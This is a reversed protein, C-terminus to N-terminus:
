LNNVYNILRKILGKNKKSGRTPRNWNENNPNDVMVVEYQREKMYSDLKYKMIFALEFDKYAILKDTLKAM